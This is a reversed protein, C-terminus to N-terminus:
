LRDTRKMGVAEHGREGSKVLMQRTERSSTKACIQDQGDEEESVKWPEWTSVSYFRCVLQQVVKLSGRKKM